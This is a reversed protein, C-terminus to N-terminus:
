EVQWGAGTVDIEVDGEQDTRLTAIGHHALTSLIDATPHGYPNDAGVSIVALRPVTRDVLADLGADESGHHAVKLVDIPGPDMPVAEAEADATLLMSFSRWRALMVIATENPDGAAGELAGQSPWEVELHLSGSDIESGETVALTRVQAFRAARLLDPAPRSFILRHIPFGGYLLEDIGGVHDSQDHTVIAAALGSVGESDLHGALDDGPPGGDVLVPAGDAPDLLIADGQGVDMVVIRLGAPPDAAGPASGSWLVALATLAAVAVAGVRVRRHPRAAGCRRRLFSILMGAAVALACYAAGVSPWARLEIGVQAWDPGALWDAVQAVYAALLGALATLPEVPVGPVQGAISALMGLWMMPAIAPLALLNAPLSAVSVAGFHHAFMPATALTAAITVGAGDALARHAPSPVVFDRQGRWNLILDRIPRALLLIGIVAAFSLQWSPDAVSRPNTLLTATAALLVAYWRWRPRGALMAIVGAAGMIGARQISPGAGTVPVYVVILVLLAILRARLGVGLLGLLWAGLLALLMVCDGSVALLHALGSRKFDDVTAPDIRDDEGLLFGRLLAAETDPTGRELASDARSRIGDVVGSLGGRRSGTLEISRARLVQRIGYRALYDAEWPPPAALTGTAVVQRGVPLDDVPEHAELALRGDGTLIRVTVDGGSRHPVATVFGRATATRGIPGAFAGDDIAAVRMAGLALGASAAALGLMAVKLWRTPGRPWRTCAIAGAGVVSLVLLTGAMDHATQPALPSIALGAALGGVLAFRWDVHRRSM